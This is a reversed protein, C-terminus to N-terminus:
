LVEIWQPMQGKYGSARYADAKTNINKVLGEVNKNLADAIACPGGEAAVGEIKKMLSNIADICSQTANVVSQRAEETLVKYAKGDDTPLCFEKTFSHSVEDCYNDIDEDTAGTAAKIQERSFYLDGSDWVLEDIADLIDDSNSAKAAAKTTEGFGPFDKQYIKGIGCSEVKKNNMAFMMYDLDCYDAMADALTDFDMDAPAGVAAKFDDFKMARKAKIKNLDIM